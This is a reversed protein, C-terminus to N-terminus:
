APPRRGQQAQAGQAAVPPTHTIAIWGLELAIVTLVAHLYHNATM